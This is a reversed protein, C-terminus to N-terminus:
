KTEEEKVKIGYKKMLMEAHEYNEEMKGYKKWQKLVRPLEEAYTIPFMKPFGALDNFSIETGITIDPLVHITAITLTEEYARWSETLYYAVGKELYKIIDKVTIYKGWESPHIIKNPFKIDIAKIIKQLTSITLDWNEITKNDDVTTIGVPMSVFIKNSELNSWTLKM